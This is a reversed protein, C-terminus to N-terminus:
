SFSLSKKETDVAPQDFPNVQLLLSFVITEIINRMMLEGLVEERAGKLILTRYPISRKSLAKEVLKFNKLFLSNMPELALEKQKPYKEFFSSNFLCSSQKTTECTTKNESLSNEDEYTILTFVKDQPGDLYLQFVSHQDNTGFSTM